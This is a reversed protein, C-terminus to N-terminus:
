ARPWSVNAPEAAAAARPRLTGDDLPEVRGAAVLRKVHYHVAQKSAGLERALASLTRPQEHLLQLARERIDEVRPLRGMEVPYVRRLQGDRASTLVRARELVGLHYAAEGNALALRRQLEGFTIGPEARAADAMRKRVDHDLVKSPRLKAYLAAFALPWKRRAWALGLASAGVGAATMAFVPALSTPPPSSASLADSPNKPPDPPPPAPAGVVVTFGGGETSRSARFTGAHTSNPTANADVKLTFGVEVASGAAIAPPAADLEVVVHPPADVTIVLAVDTGGDSRVRVVGRASEGPMLTFENPVVTLHLPPAPQEQRPTPAVFTEDPDREEQPPQRITEDPPPSVPQENPPARDSTENSADFRVRGVAWAAGSDAPISARLAFFMDDTANSLVRVTVTSNASANAALQFTTQALTALLTPSANALVVEVTQAHSSTVQFTYRLLEGRAGVQEVPAIRLEVRPTPPAADVRVTVKQREGTARDTALVTVLGTAAQAPTTVILQAEHVSGNTVRGGDNTLRAAFGATVNLVQLDFSADSLGKVRVVFSATSSTEATASPPTVELRFRPEEVPTTAEREHSAATFNAETTAAVSGNDTWVLLFRGRGSTAEAAREVTVNLQRKQSPGLTFGGGTASTETFGPPAQMRLTLNASANLMNRVDLVFVSPKDEWAVVEVFGPHLLIRPPAQVMLEHEGSWSGGISGADQDRATVTISRLGDGAGTAVRIRLPFTRQDGPALTANSGGLTGTVDAPAAVELRVTVSQLGTNTITVNTWREGGPEAMSSAPSFSVEVERLVQASALGALASAAVLTAVILPLATRRM